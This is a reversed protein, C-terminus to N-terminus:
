GNDHLFYKNIAIYILFYELELIGLNTLKIKDHDAILLMFYLYNVLKM